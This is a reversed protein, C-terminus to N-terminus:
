PVNAADSSSQGFTSGMSAVSPMNNFDFGIPQGTKDKVMKYGGTQAAPVYLVVGKDDPRAVWQGARAESLSIPAVGSGAPPKMIDDQSLRSLLGSGASQVATLQGKPVRLMGSGSFDYKDGIITQYAKDAAGQGDLGFGSAPSAYYTALMKVAPLVSKNYTDYGGASAALSAGYTPNLATEVGTNMTKKQDAPVADDFKDKLTAQSQIARQFDAQGNPTAIMGLAQMTPPLGVKQLDQFVHDWQDGYQAAMRNLEAAANGSEPPTSMLKRVEDQAQARPLVMQNEPRVGLHAQMALSAQAAAQLNGSQSAAMVNPEQAVYAAPDAQPGNLVQDIQARKQQVMNAVRNRMVVNTADDPAAGDVGGPVLAPKKFKDPLNGHADPSANALWAGRLDYTALDGSVDNGQADTRASLWKQFKAENGPDLKTNYNNTNDAAVSGPIPGVQAGQKGGTKILQSVPGLGDKLDALMGNVADPTAFKMSSLVDGAASAAYLDGSKEDAYAKPHTAYLDAIPIAPKNGLLLSEQINPLSKDLADKKTQLAGDIRNKAQEIHSLAAQQVEPDGGAAAMAKTRMDAWDPYQFGNMIAASSTASGTKAIYDKTEKIPIANAFDQSSIKGDRPDGITQLWGPQKVGNKDTFGDLRGEGANYAADALVKNNGYKAMLDSFYAQGLNTNYAKDTRFKNDDWAIGHKQATAQATAPLMQAAGIAGKDSTLPQGNSATQAGGSEVRINDQFTGTTGMTNGTAAGVLANAINMGQRAVMKPHLEEQLRTRSAADMQDGYQNLMAQAGIPDTVMRARVTADVVKTTEGLPDQVTGSSLGKAATEGRAVNLADDLSKPNNYDAAAQNSAATIRENSAVADAVKRQTFVHRAMTEQTSFMSNMSANHFMQKARPDTIGDELTQRQKVLDTNVADQQNIANEGMQSFFGNKGYTKDLQYQRFSADAQTALRKSNDMAMAGAIHAVESGVGELSQGVGTVAQGLGAQAQAELSGFDAANAQTSVPTFRPVDPLAGQPAVPVVAM